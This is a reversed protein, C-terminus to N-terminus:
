EAQAIVAFGRRPTSTVVFARAAASAIVVITCFLMAFILGGQILSNIILTKDPTANGLQTSVTRWYGLLMQSAATSTTTMVVALPVLTV